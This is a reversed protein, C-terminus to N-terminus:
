GVLRGFTVTGPCGIAAIGDVATLSEGLDEDRGILGASASPAALQDASM